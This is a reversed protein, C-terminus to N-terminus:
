QVGESGGLCPGLLDIDSRAWLCVPGARERGCAPCLDRWVGTRAVEDFREDPLVRVTSRSLEACARCVVAGRELAALRAALNVRRRTM